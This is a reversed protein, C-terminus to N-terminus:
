QKTRRKYLTCSFNRYKEATGEKIAGKIVEILRDIDILEGNEPALLNPYLEYSMAIEPHADLITVMLTGGSRSYGRIFIPNNESM